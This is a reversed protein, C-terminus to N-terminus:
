SPGPLPPASTTRAGAIPVERAGAADKLVISPRAGLADLAAADRRWLVVEHGAAALDAAAALRRPRRGSDGDEHAYLVGRARRCVAAGASSTV